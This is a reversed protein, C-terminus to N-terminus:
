VIYKLKHSLRRWTPLKLFPHVYYYIQLKFIIQNINFNFNFNSILILFFWVFSNLWVNSKLTSNQQFIPEDPSSWQVKHKRNLHARNLWFYNNSSYFTFLVIYFTFQLIHIHNQFFSVTNSYRKSELTNLNLFPTQHLLDLYCVSYHVYTLCDFRVCM